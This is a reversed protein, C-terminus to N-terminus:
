RDSGYVVLASWAGLRGGNQQIANRQVTQLAQEASVGKSMERHFGIMLDRTANEDAGPLTGVVAPVGAATFARALGSTGEGRHSGASSNDIVVLSTAGLPHQVIDRGLIVGSRPLGADDSVQLRSLMPYSVNASAAATVHVIRRGAADSFFREKTADAGSRIESAPYVAAISAADGNATTEFILPAANTGRPARKSAVLAGATLSIRVSAGEIVFRGSTSNYLAPFSVSEYTTDPIVVLRSVGGLYPSAPRIIENYLARGAVTNAASRWIEDQQDRALQAATDHSLARIIVNVSNTRIVWVALETDFQNLAIVAEDNGLSAKVHELDVVGFRQSESSSRARSGEALAFARPYDGDKLALQIAADFLQWSEDLASIPRLENSAAREQNFATLGLNLAQRAEEQRNGWVINARALRLNLQAVRLREGRQQVIGLAKTAAAAAAPPDSARLLDSETSLISIELRSRVTADPISSLTQRAQKIAV